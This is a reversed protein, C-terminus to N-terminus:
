GGTKAPNPEPLKFVTRGEKITEVIRISRIDAPAVKLPNASLVVLDALKGAELSGKGQEERYQWAADYTIAKLATLADVRQAPGIVKGSRSERTVASWVTMMPDLPTVTFDTHNSFHLNRDRAAKL